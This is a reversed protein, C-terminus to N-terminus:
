WWVVNVFGVVCFRSPVM